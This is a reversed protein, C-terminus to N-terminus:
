HQKNFTNTAKSDTSNGEATYFKHFSLQQHNSLNVRFQLLRETSLFGLFFDLKVTYSFLSIGEDMSSKLPLLMQYSISRELGSSWSDSKAALHHTTQLTHQIFSNFFIQQKNRLMTWSHEYHQSSIIVFLSMLWQM